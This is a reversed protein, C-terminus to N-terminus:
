GSINNCTGVQISRLVNLSFMEEFFCAVISIVKGMSVESTRFNIYFILLLIDCM